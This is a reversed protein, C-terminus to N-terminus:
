KGRKRRADEDKWGREWEKRLEACEETQGYMPKSDIGRGSERAWTGAQYAQQKPTMKGEM